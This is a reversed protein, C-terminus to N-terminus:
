HPTEVQVATGVASVLLTHPDLRQCDLTAAVVANAGTRAAERRLGRLASAMEKQLRDNLAAEAAPTELTMLRHAHILGLYRRIRKGEIRQTTAILVGKEQTQGTKPSKPADPRRIPAGPPGPPRLTPYTATLEDLSHPGSEGPGSGPTVPTHCQICYEADRQQCGCVPCIM